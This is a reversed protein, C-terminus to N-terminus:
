LREVFYDVLDHDGSSFLQHLTACTKGISDYEKNGILDYEDLSYSMFSLYSLNRKSTNSLIRCAGIEFHKVPLHRMTHCFVSLFAVCRLPALAPPASSLRCRSIHVGPIHAVPLHRVSHCLFFSLFTAGRAGCACRAERHTRCPPSAGYSLSLHRVTTAGVRSARKVASVILEVGRPVVPVTTLAGPKRKM